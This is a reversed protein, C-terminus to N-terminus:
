AQHACGTSLTSPSRRGRGPTFPPAQSHQARGTLGYQRHTSEPHHSIQNPHSQRVYILAQRTLHRNRIKPDAPTSVALAMRDPAIPSATAVLSTTM